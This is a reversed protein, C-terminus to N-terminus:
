RVILVRIASQPHAGYIGQLQFNNTGTFLDDIVFTWRGAADTEVIGDLRGSHWVRVTRGALASGSLTVTAATTTGGNPIAVGQPDTVFTIQPVVEDDFSLVAQDAGDYDFRATGGQSTPLTLRIIPLMKGYLNFYRTQDYRAKDLAQVNGSRYFFSHIPLSNGSGTAWTKLVLETNFQWENWQLGARAAINQQFRDATAPSGIRVDWGCQHSHRTYGPTYYNQLWQQSTQIGLEHCPASRAPNSPHPGCGQLTRRNWTDGDFPFACLVELAVTGTPASMPAYFVFGNPLFTDPFNMDARMWAASIGGKAVSDPSPDWPLFEPRSDTARLIVGSCLFAPRTASGCDSDNRAYWANLQAVADEGRGLVRIEHTPLHTHHSFYSPKGGCASLAGTAAVLMWRAIRSVM